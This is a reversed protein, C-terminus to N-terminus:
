LEAVAELTSVRWRRAEQRAHKATSFESSEKVLGHLHRLAEKGLATLGDPKFHGDSDSLVGLGPYDDGELVAKCLTTLDIATSLTGKLGM